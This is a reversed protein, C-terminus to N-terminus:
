ARGASKRDPTARDPGEGPATTGLMAVGPVPLVTLVTLLLACAALAAIVSATLMGLLFGAAAVCLPM